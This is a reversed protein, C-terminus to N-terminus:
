KVLCELVITFFVTYLLQEVANFVFDMDSRRAAPCLLRDVSGDQNHEKSLKDYAHQTVFM